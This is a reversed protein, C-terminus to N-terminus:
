DFYRIHAGSTTHNCQFHNLVERAKTDKKHNLVRGALVVIRFNAASVSPSGVLVVSKISQDYQQCAWLFCILAYEVNNNVGSEALDKIHGSLSYTGATIVLEDAGATQIDGDM